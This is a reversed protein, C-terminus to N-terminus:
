ADLAQVAARAHGILLDRWSAHQAAVPQRPDREMVPTMLRQALGTRLATIPREHHVTQRLSDGSTVKRRFVISTQADQTQQTEYVFRSRMVRVMEGVALVRRGRMAELTREFQCENDPAKLVKTM